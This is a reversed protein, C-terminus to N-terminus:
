ALDWDIKKPLNFTLLSCRSKLHERNYFRGIGRPVAVSTVGSKELGHMVYMFNLGMSRALRGVTTFDELFSALSKQSVAPFDHGKLSRGRKILELQKTKILYDVTRLSTALFEAAKLKPLAPIMDALIADRLNEHDVFIRDLGAGNPVLRATAVKQELILDVAGVLSTGLKQCAAPLKIHGRPPSAAPKISPFLGALYAEIETPDFMPRKDVVDSYQNIVGRLRLQRFAKDSSGLM